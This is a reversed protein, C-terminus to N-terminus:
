KMALLFEEQRKCKKGFAARSTVDNTLSCFLERLNIPLGASSNISEILNWVEEERISRFLQVRQASFLETVCIKRIQRWYKGYHSFLIGPHDQAFVEVVLTSPRQAFVTEHKQLVDRAAEPSSIVVAFIEGLQLQMIPGYKKALNRLSYHPLSGALQHLNGILPLKWPRPPLKFTPGKPKSSKWFIVLFPFLLTLVLYLSSFQIM